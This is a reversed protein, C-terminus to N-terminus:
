FAWTLAVKGTPHLFPEYIDIVLEPELAISFRKGLLSQFGVRCDFVYYRSSERFYGDDNEIEKEYEIEGIIGVKTYLGIHRRWGFRHEYAVGSNLCLFLTCPQFFPPM